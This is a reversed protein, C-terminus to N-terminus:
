EYHALNSSIPLQNEILLKKFAQVMDRTTEEPLPQVLKQHSRAHSNFHNVQSSLMEPVSIDLEQFLQNLRAVNSFDETKFLVFPIDPLQQKWREIRAETEFWYWLAKYYPHNFESKGELVEPIYILNSPARYDLWWRNGNETGPQDQLSYISNAVNAPNRVLHIVKVRKGFDNVVQKIFTKIFLHNAELYYESGAAHRRINVSKRIKYFRNVRQEDGYSAALLINNNMIPYPEHLATCSSLRSFINVLTLTGSRGTTAVFIFNRVRNPKLDYYSNVLTATYGNYILNKLMGKRMSFKGSCVIGNCLRAIIM